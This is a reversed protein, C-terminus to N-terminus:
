CGFDEAHSVTIPVPGVELSYLWLGMDTITKVFEELDFIDDTIDNLSRVVVVDIDNEALMEFFGDLDSRDYDGTRSRDCYAFRIDVGNPITKKNMEDLMLTLNTLARRSKLFAIGNALEQTGNNDVVNFDNKNM